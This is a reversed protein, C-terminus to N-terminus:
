PAVELSQGLGARRPRAVLRRTSLSASEHLIQALFHALRLDKDIGHEPLAAEFLPLYKSARAEPVGLGTLLEQTIPM